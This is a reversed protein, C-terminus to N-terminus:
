PELLSQPTSADAPRDTVLRTHLRDADFQVTGEDRGPTFYLFAPPAPESGPQIAPVAELGPPAPVPAPAQRTARCRHCREVQRRESWTWVHQCAIQQLFRLM